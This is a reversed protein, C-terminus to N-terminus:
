NWPLSVRLNMGCEIRLRIMCNKLNIVIEKIYIRINNEWRRRPRELCMNETSKHILTKFVSRVEEM